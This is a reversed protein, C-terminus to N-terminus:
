APSKGTRAHFVREWAVLWNCFDDVLEGQTEDTFLHASLVHRYKGALQTKPVYLKGSSLSVGWLRLFIPREFTNINLDASLKPCRISSM